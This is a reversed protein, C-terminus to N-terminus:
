TWSNTIPAHASAVPLLFHPPLFLHGQVHPQPGVPSLHTLPSCTLSRHAHVPLFRSQAVADKEGTRMGLSVNCTITMSPQWTLLHPKQKYGQEQGTDTTTVWGTFDTCHKELTSYVKIWPFTKSSKLHFIGSTSYLYISQFSLFHQLYFSKEAKLGSIFDKATHYSNNPPLNPTVLRSAAWHKSQCSPVPPCKPHSWLDLASGEARSHSQKHFRSVLCERFAAIYEERLIARDLLLSLLVM